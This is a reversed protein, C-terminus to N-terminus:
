NRRPPKDDHEPKAKEQPPQRRSEANPRVEPKRETRAKTETPHTQPAATPQTSETRPTRRATSQPQDNPQAHVNVNPRVNTNPRAEVNPRDTTTPQTRPQANPYPQVNVNPRVPTVPLANTKQAPAATPRDPNTMPRTAEVRPAGRTESASLPAVPRDGSTRLQAAHSDFTAPRPPPTNKWVVPRAIVKEPPRSVTTTNRRVLISQRTPAVPAGDGVVHASTAENVPVVVGRRGISRSGAFEDNRVATVAGAVRQNRYQINTVNVNTVNINTVHVNTVNVNRVYRDSAHYAPRYVEGPALPFWATGGGSGFGVSVSFNSGGVFAVLAPAYVPRRVIVGPAWVWRNRVYAWRGYHFPAFGWPADDIWTWGWPEVWAWRGYRYPAWGSVVHAPIWVHGYSPDNDWTGNADLDEYGTMDRGVYQASVSQNDGRDRADAWQDYEDMPAAARVDPSAGDATFLVTEDARVPVTSNNSAVEANGDRVTVTSTAGDESVDVRYTGTRLLTVAGTPTDIEYNDDDALEHLSVMTTGQTLRIQVHNDDLSLIEFATLPGLRIAN